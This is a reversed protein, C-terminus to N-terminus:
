IKRKKGGNYYPDTRPIWDMFAEAQMDWFRWEHDFGPVGAWTVSYGLKKAAEVFDLNDQYLSDKTGCSIYLPLRAAKEANKELQLLVDKEAGDKEAHYYMPAGSFSGAAAFRESERLAHILSGYGGMSLGAIYTDEPKASVPFMGQVFEPLEKSIFRFYDDDGGHDIYFKNEASFMVVCLNREEAYLEVSTYGNWTAHNNGYGHLLYLVPYEANQRHHPDPEMMEPFCMTPLIVTLDVARHLTYSLFNCTIRAM